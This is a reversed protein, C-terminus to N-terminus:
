TEITLICKTPLSDIWPRTDEKKTRFNIYKETKPFLKWTDKPSNLFLYEYKYSRWQKEIFVNGLARCKGDM